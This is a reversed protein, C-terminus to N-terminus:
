RRIRTDWITLGGSARCAVLRDASFAVGGWFHGETDQLTLLLQQRETDWVRILNGRNATAIRRGDPSIAIQHSEVDDVPLRGVERTLSGDWISVSGPRLAGWMVLRTGDESGVIRWDGSYTKWPAQVVKLLRNGRWNWLQFTADWPRIEGLPPEASAAVVLAGDPRFWLATAVQEHDLQLVAALKASPFERIVVCTGRRHATFREDPSFAVADIDGPATRRTESPYRCRRDLEASMALPSRESTEVNWVTASGKVPAQGYVGLANVGPPLGVVEDPEAALIFRGDGTIALPRVNPDHPGPPRLIRFGSDSPRLLALAGDSGSVAVVGTRSAVMNMVPWVAPVYRVAISDTVSWKKIVGANDATYASGDVAIAAGIVPADHGDLRRILRGEPVSWLGAGTLWSSVIYAEDPGFAISLIRNLRISSDLSDGQISGTPPPVLQDNRLRVVTTTSGTLDLIDVLGSPRGVALKTGDRNFTIPQSVFQTQVTDTFVPADKTTDWINVLAGSTAWRRGGPSIRTACAVVTDGRLDRAPPAPPIARQVLQGADANWLEFHDNVPTGTSPVREPQLGIAAWRGDASLDACRPEFAFPGLTARPVASTRDLVLVDWRNRELLHSVVRRGAPNVALVTTGPPGPQVTHTWTRTDWSELTGCRRVFVAKGDPSLTIVDDSDVRFQERPRICPTDAHVTHLSLDSRLFLYRWEWARLSEPVTLLRARAAAASNFRLEGDAAAITATYARYEAERRAESAATAESSAALRQRNAEETAALATNREGSAERAIREAVQRQDDAQTRLRDAEQRQAEARAYEIVSVTLGGVLAVLIATTAVVAGRYRRTFKRVRYTVSPPRAFVPEDALYRNVDQAFAAVTAYRRRRDKDLAKLAIWDLDGRLQRSLRGADTQRAIAAASAQEASALRVSPKPPDSERIVRRMEDYGAQRLMAPDFPLRGVLLEYLLVGLSYVDTATDIDTSLAAQEPSMYEPTGVIIGHETTAHGAGPGHQIAKAVGFDIIKPLPKGDADAVLINSPKLDRHIVGKQHAYQVAACVTTFLVLRDHTPLRHQDCYETIPLGDVYEMVFYPRGDRTAGAEFVAAINPHNMVALTQREVEFREVAQRSAMGPKILKLAVQRHIPSLQTALYVVGMGGEGITNLITYGPIQPDRAAVTDAALQRAADHLASRELFGPAGGDERLLSEVQHRLHADGDCAKDLFSVRDDPRRELAAHFLAEITPWRDASM